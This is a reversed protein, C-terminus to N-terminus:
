CLSGRFWQIDNGRFAQWRGSRPRSDLFGIVQQIGMRSPTSVANPLPPVDATDVIKRPTDKTTTVCPTTHTNGCFNKEEETTNELIKDINLYSLISGRSIIIPIQVDNKINSLIKDVSKLVTSKRSTKVSLQLLKTFCQNYKIRIDEKVGLRSLSPEIDEFWKRCIKQANNKTETSYVTVAKITQIESKLKKLLDEIQNLALIADEKKM